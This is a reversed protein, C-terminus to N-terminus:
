KHKTLINKSYDKIEIKHDILFLEVDELNLGRFLFTNTFFEVIDM